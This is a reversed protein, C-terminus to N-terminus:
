QLEELMMSRHTLDRTLRDFAQRWGPDECRRALVEAMGAATAPLHAAAAVLLSRHAAPGAGHAGVRQAAVRSREFLLLLVHQALPDPWPHGMAPLLAEIESFWAGDLRLLHRVRDDEPLLAFLERRRLLAVDSPVGAEFLAKAWGSDHQALAADVWGDFMPQRFREQVGVRIVDQPTAPGRLTQWHPLPTAAVLQRLRGATPDPTGNWRYTFEVPRDFIGDRRADADLPDPLHLVFATGGPASQIDIWAQARTTMRQAFASDPLLALLGSATRRVDARRDDLAAELLPEDKASLETSLVDLLEAKLTGSEKPWAQALAERAADPHQERLRTLWALRQAPKGTRWIEETALLASESLNPWELKRWDPHRAALWRGRPGALRLLLPRLGAHASAQELLLASLAEPARFDRPAAAEFWEPLFVSRERLMTALRRAAAAPLLRRSDDPAPAPLEATTALAGGRTFADHLAVSELLLAAPDGSLRGSVAGVSAQLQAIDVARRATGLLAVSTLHESGFAAAGRASEPELDLVEGSTFVSMPVLGAATWEGIVTVPHGGSIALLQWPRAGEALPLASGDAEAVQWGNEGTVPVVDPVLVPWAWLWPDAALAHAQAALAAAVPGANQPDADRAPTTPAPLRPITTFPEDAGYREGWLARLPAAAPYYHLDAEAALGLAPTNKPFEATGFSHDVLLAWRGSRRGRLWTRRTHLREEETIRVGLVMWQDRVTPEERVSATRTPYGIHTRVSARLPAPLDDLRRHAAVLLHLRAYERLLLGPWDTRGALLEPLRRLMAAVGPAQADVMRAAIAAFARQSRDSQALGTRVQDGLWIDLEALGAAVRVERQRAAATGPPGVQADAPAASM